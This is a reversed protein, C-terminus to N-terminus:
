YHYEDAWEREVYELHDATPEVFPLPVHPNALYVSHWSPDDDHIEQSWWMGYGCLQRQSKFPGHIQVPEDNAYTVIYNHEPGRPKAEGAAKAKAFLEAVANQNATNRAELARKWETMASTFDEIVVDLTEVAGRAFHQDSKTRPEAHIDAAGTRLSVFHDLLNSMMQMAEENMDITIHQETM